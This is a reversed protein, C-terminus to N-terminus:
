NQHRLEAVAGKEMELRVRPLSEPYNAQLFTLLKERVQCRLDWASSSDSASMLARLEITQATADTVQLNWVKKDWLAAQDLIRKLEERIKEVPIRYDAYIFVTGLLDASIRTWNQFPQDIFYTIPVILRRLDWIRVVVYTLTIEEIRGWENEVIVVDDLRIPQAIAIQIGAFLTGLTKQAAFGLIIGIVGASALLSVGVQRVKAFSMMIAALAVLIIAVTVVRQIMYLQTNLRRAGLNDATDMGHRSIIIEIIIYVTKVALWAFGAIVLIILLHRFLVNIKEPFSLFQFVISVFLVPILIRLPARWHQVRVKIDKNKLTLGAGWHFIIVSIIKYFVIGVVIAALLILLSVYESNSHTLSSILHEVNM